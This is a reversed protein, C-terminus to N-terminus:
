WVLPEYGKPMGGRFSCVIILFHGLIISLRKGEGKVVGLNSVEPTTWHTLVEEKGLPPAQTQDKTLDWVGCGFIRCAVFFTASGM